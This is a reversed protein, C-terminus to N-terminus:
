GNEVPVLSTLTGVVPLARVLSLPAELTTVL